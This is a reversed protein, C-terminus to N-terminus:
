RNKLNYVDWTIYELKTFDRKKKKIADKPSMLKHLM